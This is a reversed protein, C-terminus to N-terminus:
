VVSFVMQSVEPTNLFTRDNPAGSKILGHMIIRTSLFVFCTIIGKFENEKIPSTCMINKAKQRPCKAKRSKSFKEHM